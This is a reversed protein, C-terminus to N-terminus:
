SQVLTVNHTKTMNVKVQFKGNTNLKKSIINEKVNRIVTDIIYKEIHFNPLLEGNKIICDLNGSDVM